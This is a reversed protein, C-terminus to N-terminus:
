DNIIYRKLFSQFMLFCHCVPPPFRFVIKLFVSADKIQWFSKGVIIRYTKLNEYCEPTGEKYRELLLYTFRRLFMDFVYSNQYFQEAGKIARMQEALLDFQKGIEGADFYKNDNEKKLYYYESRCSFAMRRILPLYSLIFLEDEKLWFHINFLLHNTQIVSARFLKCPTYGFQSRKALIDYGKIAEISYSEACIPCDKIEDGVLKHGQIVIDVDSEIMEYFSALWDTGVFDDSDCFTIWEGKSEKLGLNRASSAGGNDKHFVRTRSDMSRYEYCISLSDDESGDDILLLEFDTLSQCLISDICKRLTKCANFIPVIISISPNIM